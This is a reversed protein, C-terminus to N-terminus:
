AHGVPKEDLEISGGELFGGSTNRLHDRLHIVVSRKPEVSRAVVVIVLRNGWGDPSLNNRDAASDIWNDWVRSSNTCACSEHVALLADIAEGLLHTFGTRLQAISCADWSVARVTVRSGEHFVGVEVALDDMVFKDTTIVPQSDAAVGGIRGLGILEDSRKQQALFSQFAVTQLGDSVIHRHSAHLPVQVLLSFSRTFQLNKYGLDSNSM